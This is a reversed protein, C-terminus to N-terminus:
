RGPHAFRAAPRTSPGDVASTISVPEAYPADDSSAAQVSATAVTLTGALLLLGLLRMTGETENVGLDRSGRRVFTHTSYGVKYCINCAIQIVYSRRARRPARSSLHCERVSAWALATLDRAPAAGRYSRPRTAWGGAARRRSNGDLGSHPSFSVRMTVHGVKDHTCSLRLGGEMGNWEKTGSWGRWDDAVDAFFDALPEEVGEPGLWISTQATLGEDVVRVVLSWLGSRDGDVIGVEGRELTLSAGTGIQVSPQESM